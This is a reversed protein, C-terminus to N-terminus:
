FFEGPRHALLPGVWFDQAKWLGDLGHQRRTEVAERRYCLPEELDGRDDAGLHSPWQELSHGLKRCLGYILAQRMELLGLAESLRM